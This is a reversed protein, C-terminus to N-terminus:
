DELDKLIKAYKVLTAQYRKGPIIERIIRGDEGQLWQWDCLQYCTYNLGDEWSSLGYTDKEQCFAKCEAIIDKLNTNLTIPVTIYWNELEHRDEHYDGNEDKYVRRVHKGWVDNTSQKIFRPYDLIEGYYYNRLLGEYETIKSIM